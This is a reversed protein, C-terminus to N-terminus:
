KTDSSKQIVNDFDSPRRFCEYTHRLANPIWESDVQIAIPIQKTGFKLLVRYVTLKVLSQADRLM